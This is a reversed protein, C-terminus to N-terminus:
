RTTDNLGALLWVRDPTISNALKVFYRVSRLPRSVAAQWSGYLAEVRFNLRSVNKSSPCVLQQVFRRFVADVSSRCIWHFSRMAVVRVRYNIQVSGAMSWVVIWRSNTPRHPIADDNWGTPWRDMMLLNRITSNWHQNTTHYHCPM